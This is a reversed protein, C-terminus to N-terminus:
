VGVEGVQVRGGVGCVQVRCGWRVWRCGVGGGWM